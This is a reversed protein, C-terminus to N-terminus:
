LQDNLRHRNSLLLGKFPNNKKFKHKKVYIAANGFKSALAEKNNKFTIIEGNYEVSFPKSKIDSLIKKSSENLMPNNARMRESREQRVHKKYNPNLTKDKMRQSCAQRRALPWVKSLKEPSYKFRSGSTDFGENAIVINYWNPDNKVNFHHQWYAERQQLSTINDCEEIVNRKFNSAGLIKIDEILSKSSGLYKEWGKKYIKRGLYKKGNVLCTTIYIFGVM